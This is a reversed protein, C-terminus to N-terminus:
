DCGSASITIMKRTDFVDSNSSKINIPKSNHYYKDKHIYVCVNLMETYRRGCGGVCWVYLVDRRVGGDVCVCM